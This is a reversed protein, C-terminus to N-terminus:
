SPVTGETPASGYESTLTLALVTVNDGGGGRNAADVLTRCVDMARAAVTGGKADRVAEALLRGVAAEEPGGYDTLGDSCLLLWEGPLLTLTRTYPPAPTPTGEPSFHGLYGVLPTGADGWPLPQGAVHARVREAQLNQDWTLLSVGHRGVLYARSDGLSALFVRNGRTLALVLTTGMPVFDDADPRALRLAADCVIANARELADAVAAHVRPPEADRVADARESWWLRLARTALSAALDGSGANCQSIGDAVCLLSWSPEGLLLLSDQNTQTQLSKLAGVHTEFGACAGAQHAWPVDQRLAHVAEALHLREWLALGDAPRLDPDAALADLAVAVLELPLAVPHVGLLPVLDSDPLHGPSPLPGLVQELLLRMVFRVDDRRGQATPAGRTRFRVAAGAVSVTDRDPVIGLGGLHVDALARALRLGLAFAAAAPVTGAPPLPQPRVSLIESAELGERLALRGGIWTFRGDAEFLPKVAEWWREFRAASLLGLALLWDRVDPGELAEGTEALLMALATCPEAELLARTGDPDLVSRALLGEPLCRRYAKAVAVLGVHLPHSPGQHRWRLTVGSADREEVTAFGFAPHHLVDGVQPSLPSPEDPM